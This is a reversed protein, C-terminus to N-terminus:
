SLRQLFNRATAVRSRWGEDSLQDAESVVAVGSGDAVGYVQDAVDPTLLHDFHFSGEFGFWAVMAGGAVAQDLCGALYEVLRSPVIDFLADHEVVLHGARGTLPELEYQRVEKPIFGAASMSPTLEVAPAVVAFLSLTAGSGSWAIMEELKPM